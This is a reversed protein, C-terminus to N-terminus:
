FYTAMSFLLAASRAELNFRDRLWNYQYDLKFVTDESPRFNLGLTLRNQSDGDLETNFDILDYRAVGTFVSSPLTPILGQLFHVNGQVYFGQQKEAFLGALQGPVDISARAYEGLLEFRNWRVEGDLAFITLSRKEDVELGEVTHVNYPGTHGSVGVELTPHPSISVRGVFSPNQNNDEFNGKGAPVRTGDESGILVDDNFGNTAYLEYTLRSTASPYFAGFFGMGAESLATGIIETSVLPRDTLDNAPSDHALNFRGLPSLLIGGRFSLAEHIEFDIIALEIKIEEGGEEFELESAVRVRESVPTYTFINFRKPEFTVEETIGNEREFRFHTETYGGISIGGGLRAIYPKDYVGGKVFPRPQSEQAASMSAVGAILVLGSLVSFLMRYVM